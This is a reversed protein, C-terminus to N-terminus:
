AESVRELLAITKPDVIEEKGGTKYWCGQIQVALQTGFMRAREALTSGPIDNLHQPQVEYVAKNGSPLTVQLITNTM